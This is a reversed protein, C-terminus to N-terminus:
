YGTIFLNVFGNASPYITIQNSTPSSSIYGNSWPALAGPGGSSPTISVHFTTTYNLPFTIITGATNVAFSGQQEIKGRGNEDPAFQTYTFGLSSGSAVIGVGNAAIDNLVAISQPNTKDLITLDGQIAPRFSAEAYIGSTSNGGANNTAAFGIVMKANVSNYYSELKAFRNSDIRNITAQYISEQGGSLPYFRIDNRSSSVNADLSLIDQIFPSVTGDGLDEWGSICNYSATGGYAANSATILAQTYSKSDVVQTTYISQAFKPAILVIQGGVVTCVVADTIPDPTTVFAYATTFTYNTVGPTPPAVSYRAVIYGNGSIGSVVNSDTFGIIGTNQPLFPYAGPTFCFMGAPMTVSGSAVPPISGQLNLIGTGFNAFLAYIKSYLDQSFTNMQAATVLQGVNWNSQNSTNM